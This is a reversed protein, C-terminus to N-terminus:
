FSKWVANVPKDVKKVQWFGGKADDYGACAKCYRNWGGDPSFVEVRECRFLDIECKCCLQHRDEAVCVGSGIAGTVVGSAIHYRTIAGSGMSGVNLCGDALGSGYYM